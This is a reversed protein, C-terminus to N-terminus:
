EPMLCNSQMPDAMLGKLLDEVLGALRPGVNEISELEKWGMARCILGVDQLPTVGDLIIRSLPTPQVSHSTRNVANRAGGHHLRDRQLEM